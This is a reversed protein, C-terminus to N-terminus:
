NDLEIVLDDEIRDPVVDDNPPGEAGAPRIKRLMERTQLRNVNNQGGDDVGNPGVSWLLRREPSYRLVDGYPDRPLTKIIGADVLAGLEDPLAGTKQQYTCIALRTGAATMRACVNAYTQIEQDPLLSSVFHRGLPNRVDRLQQRCQEMVDDPVNPQEHGLLLAIMDDARLSLEPPWAAAEKELQLRRETGPLAGPSEIHQLAEIYCEVALKVTAKKDFPAPHGQLLKRIDASRSDIEANADTPFPIPRNPRGLNIMAEVARELDNDDPLPALVPVRFQHFIQRLAYEVEAVTPTSAAIREQIVM